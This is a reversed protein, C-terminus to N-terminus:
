GADAFGAKAAAVGDGILAMDSALVTLAYGQARRQRAAAVSMTFLGCPRQAAQCAALVDACASEHAADGPACGLSVALDGTGIFVMDLGPTAAIAAANALGTATEIMAVVATRNQAGALYSGFAALPRVGGASRIGIPPYHAAAVASAADASTDILPVIVGAAGADLAEGILAARNEAVRVMVPLDRALGIATEMGLRDFLGHQLDLVLLDPASRAAIEAIAAHGLSLWVAGLGEGAAIRAKLGAAQSADRPAPLTDSGPGSEGGPGREGGPGSEGGRRRDDNPPGGNAPM